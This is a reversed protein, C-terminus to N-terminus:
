VVRLTHQSVTAGSLPPNFQYAYTLLESTGQYLITLNFSLIKKM